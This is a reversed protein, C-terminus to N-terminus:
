QKQRQDYGGTLVDKVIGRKILETEPLEGLDKTEVIWQDLAARMERLQKQYKPDNALNKIEDPDTQTDYLEEKPKTKAWFLAPAGSLKGENHLRRWVQMTPNQENYSLFQAYPLEPAFNRIYHYRLGRVSRIRDYVEDMRDRASFVYQRPKAQQDGGKDNLIIQGQMRAPVEAGALSLVTPAFDLFCVLDERVTDPKIKAPWRMLLPVRIGSDWLWRKGRPMGRGHDGFLIVLTNDAVKYKELWALVDGVVYDAATLDDYYQSLDKRIEPADPYYAPLKMNAPKHFQNPKLRVTNKAHQEATARTQSEHTVNLNLYHFFPQKPPAVQLWDNRTDVQQATPRYNFVKPDPNGDDFNWDVKGPWAVFYGADRLYKTFVEPPNILKSRMHHSGITTPYMGTMLGSRSPACVPAHTFARTFRAGERALRDMNPTIAQADGYCGLDPSVDDLVIMIFNPRVTGQAAVSTSGSNLSGAWGFLCLWMLPRWLSSLLPHRM